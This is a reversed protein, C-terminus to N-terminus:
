VLHSLRLVQCFMMQPPAAPQIGTMTPQATMTSLRGSPTGAWHHCAITSHSMTKKQVGGCVQASAM